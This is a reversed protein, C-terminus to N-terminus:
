TGGFAGPKLASAEDDDQRTWLHRIKLTKPAAMTRATADKTQAYEVRSLLATKESGDVYERQRAAAIRETQYQQLRPGVAYRVDAIPSAADTPHDVIFLVTQQHTAAVDGAQGRGYEAQGLIRFQPM